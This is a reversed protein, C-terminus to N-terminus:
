EGEVRRRGSEGLATEAMVEIRTAIAPDTGADHALAVVKQLVERSRKLEAILWKIDIPTLKLGGEHARELERLRRETVRKRSPVFGAGSCDPCDVMGYDSAYEGTGMCGECLSQSDPLTMVGKSHGATNAISSGAGPKQSNTMTHLSGHSEVSPSAM